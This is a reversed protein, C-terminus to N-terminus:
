PANIDYEGFTQLTHVSRVLWHEPTKKLVAIKDITARACHTHQAQRLRRRDQGSNQFCNRYPRSAPAAANERARERVHCGRRLKM